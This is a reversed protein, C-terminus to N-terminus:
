RRNRDTETHSARTRARSCLGACIPWASRVAPEARRSAWTLTFRRMKRVISLVTALGAGGCASQTSDRFLVLKAHRYPTSTQQPLLQTWTKQTDDLVFWVFQVLPKEAADRSPDPRSVATGSGGTGGDVLTFLNTKFILSLILLVIAGGIGMHIGGFQFGGGGSQDRRDEIDQSESRAVM